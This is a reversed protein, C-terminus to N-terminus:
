NVVVEAVKGFRNYLVDVDAGLLKAADLEMRKMRADSLFIRETADGAGKDTPISRSLYLNMGSIKEGDKGTFSLMQYGTVKM